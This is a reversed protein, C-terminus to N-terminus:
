YNGNHWNIILRVLDDTEVINTAIGEVSASHSLEAVQKLLDDIAAVDSYFVMEGDPSPAYLPDGDTNAADYRKM